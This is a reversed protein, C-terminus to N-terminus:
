GGQLRRVCEPLELGLAIFQEIRDAVVLCREHTPHTGSAGHSRACGPVRHVQGYHDVLDATVLCPASSQRGAVSHPAATAAAQAAGGTVLLLFAVLATATTATDHHHNM